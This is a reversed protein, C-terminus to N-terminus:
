DPRAAPRRRDTGTAEAPRQLAPFAWGATRPLRDLLARAPSSLWVTRPGTKSDRLFLHGERYDSWRLRRIESQRCGTLLLLRVALAPVPSVAERARLAAGLHRAEHTTLLRERVRSRYRRVGTCPNSNEPRYGYAEAQRMVVSLVPLSRNAAAPTAHLGALWRQVDSHTIEAIARDRFWPMIQHPRGYRRQGTEAFGVMAPLRRPTTRGVRIHHRTMIPM